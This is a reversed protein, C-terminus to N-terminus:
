AVAPLVACGAQELAVVADRTSTESIGACMELLVTVELGAGAADLSSALVCYDTAIGVVDIQTIGAASLVQELTQGEASLGEFASYSAHGMGKRVHVGIFSQDLNPHYEAGFTNAVCHPPWSSVFDPEAGDIAFHGENSSASDHWDRSAVILDYGSSNSALFDSIKRAVEAGGAVALSGGECFDNQVDVILLARM